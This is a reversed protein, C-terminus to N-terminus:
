YTMSYSINSGKHQVSIKATQGKGVNGSTFSGNGNSVSTYHSKSAHYGHAYDENILTTNYGYTLVGGGDSTSASKEWKKAFSGNYSKTISAASVTKTLLPTFTVAGLLSAAVLSLIMKKKM